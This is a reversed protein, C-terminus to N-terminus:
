QHRCIDPSHQGRLSNVHDGPRCRTIHRSTPGYTVSPPQRKKMSAGTRHILAHLRTQKAATRNRPRAANFSNSILASHMPRKSERLILIYESLLRARAVGGGGWMCAGMCVGPHSIGPCWAVTNAFGENAASQLVEKFM